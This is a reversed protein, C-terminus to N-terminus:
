ISHIKFGTVVFNYYNDFDSIDYLTSVESNSHLDWIISREKFSIQILNINVKSKKKETCM